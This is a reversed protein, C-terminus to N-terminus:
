GLLLCCGGQRPSACAAPQTRLPDAADRPVAGCVAVGASPLPPPCPFQNVACCLHRCLGRASHGRGLGWFWPQALVGGGEGDWVANQSSGEIGSDVELDGGGVEFDGEKTDEDQYDLLKHLTPAALTTKSRVMEAGVVLEVAEQSPPPFTLPPFLPSCDVTHAPQAPQALSTTLPTKPELARPELCTSGESVKLPPNRMNYAAEQSAAKASDYAALAQLCPRLLPM